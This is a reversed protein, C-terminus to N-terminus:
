PPDSSALTRATVQRSVAVLEGDQDVYTREETIFVAPGEATGRATIDLIKFRVTLRDGIRIPRMWEIDTGANLRAVERTVTITGALGALSPFAREGSEDVSDHSPAPRVVDLIMAPPALTGVRGANDAFDAAGWLPNCDGTANMYRRVDSWEIAGPTEVPESERGIWARLEAPLEM